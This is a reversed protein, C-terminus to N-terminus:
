STVEPYPISQEDLAERANSDEWLGDSDESGYTDGATLGELYAAMVTHGIESNTM